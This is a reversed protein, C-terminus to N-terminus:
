IPTPEGSLQLFTWGLTRGPYRAGFVSYQLLRGLHVKPHGRTRVFTWGLTRGPSTGRVGFIPVRYRAALM